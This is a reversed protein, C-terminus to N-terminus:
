PSHVLTSVAMPVQGVTQPFLMFSPESSHSPVSWEAQALPEQMGAPWVSWHLHADAVALQATALEPLTLTTWCPPLTVKLKDKLLM